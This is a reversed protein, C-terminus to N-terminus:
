VINKICRWKSQSRDCSALYPINWKCYWTMAWLTKPKPWNQIESKWILSACGAYCRGLILSLV